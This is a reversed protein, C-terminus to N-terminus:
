LSGLHPIAYYVISNWLRIKQRVRLYEPWVIALLVRKAETQCRVGISMNLMYQIDPAKGVYMSYM